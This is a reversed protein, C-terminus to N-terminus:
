VERTEGARWGALHRLTHEVIPEAYTQVQKAQFAPNALRRQQRWHDGESTLLGGGFLRSTDRLLRWKIFDRHHTRLVHEVHDPHNFVYFTLWPARLRVVDGYERAGRSLFGLPDRLYQLVHGILFQGRPGPPIRTDAMTLGTGSLHFRGYRETATLA